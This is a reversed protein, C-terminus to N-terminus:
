LFMPYRCSIINMTQCNNSCSLQPFFVFYSLSKFHKVSEKSVFLKWNGSFNVFQNNTVEVGSPQTCLKFVYWYYFDSMTFFSKICLKSSLLAFSMDSVFYEFCISIVAYTIVTMTAKMMMMMMMMIMMMIIMVIRVTWNPPEPSSKPHAASM